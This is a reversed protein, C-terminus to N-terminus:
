RGKCNFVLGFGLTLSLVSCISIFRFRPFVLWMDVATFTDVRVGMLLGEAFKWANMVACIDESIVSRLGPCVSGCPGDLEFYLYYRFEGVMPSNRSSTEFMSVGMFLGLLRRLFKFPCECVPFFFNSSFVLFLGVWNGVVPPFPVLFWSM